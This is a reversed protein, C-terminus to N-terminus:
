MLDGFPVSRVPVHPLSVRVLVGDACYHGSPCVSQGTRLHPSGELSGTSYNGLGVRQASQSGQPCYWSAADRQSADGGCARARSSISGAPCFHGATCPGNCTPTSLRDACGFSGAECRRQVGGACYSGGPCPASDDRTAPTPGMTFMGPAAAQPLGSGAPCFVDEGGCPFQFASTSGAPCFHGPACPGSCAPSAQEPTAGYVGAPCPAVLGGACYQGPQCPAEAAQNRVGEGVGPVTFFGPTAPTPAEAGQLTDLLHVRPPACM